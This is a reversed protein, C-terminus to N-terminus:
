KRLGKRIQTRAWRYHNYTNFAFAQWWTAAAADTLQNALVLVQQHSQEFAQQVDGLLRHQNELFVKENYAPTKLNSGQEPQGTVRQILRQEWETLHVLVDKVSWVGVVGPQVFQDPTLTALLKELLAREAQIATLLAM